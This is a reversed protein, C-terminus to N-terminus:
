PQLDRALEHMREVQEGQWARLQEQNFGKFEGSVSHLGHHCRLCLPMSERDPAKQGKGRGFTTHHAESPGPRGCKCCPFTRVWALWKPDRGVPKRKKARTPKPCAVLAHGSM